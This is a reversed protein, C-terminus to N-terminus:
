LFDVWSSIVARLCTGRGRNLSFEGSLDVDCSLGLESEDDSDSTNVLQVWFDDPDESDKSKSLDVVTGEHSDVFCRRVEDSSNFWVDGETIWGSLGDAFENELSSISFDVFLSNGKSVVGDNLLSEALDSNVGNFVEDILDVGNTRVELLSVVEQPGEFKSSGSSSESGLSM